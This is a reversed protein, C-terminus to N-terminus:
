RITKKRFIRDAHVVIVGSVVICGGAIAQPAPVEGLWIWSIFFSAIPVLFLFSGARSADMRTLGYTWALYAAVGPFLALWLVAYQVSSPAGLFASATDAGFPLLLVTGGALMYTTMELASYKGLLPKQLIIAGSWSAAATLILLSGTNLSVGSEGVTILAIGAFGTFIGISRKTDLSEKLFMRAFLATFVPITNVLFSTSAATVTQAGINLLINYASTGLLAILLLRPLDGRDPIRIRTLAGWAVLILSTIVYRAIAIDVPPMGTLSLRIAPFASAFLLIASGLALYTKM